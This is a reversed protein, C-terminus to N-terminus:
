VTRIPLGVSKSGFVRILRSERTACTEPKGAIFTHNEPRIHIKCFFMQCNECQSLPANNYNSGYKSDGQIIRSCQCCSITSNLQMQSRGGYPRCLIYGWMKFMVIGFGCLVSLCTQWLGQLRDYVHSMHFWQMVSMSNRFFTNYM